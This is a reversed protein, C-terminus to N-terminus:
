LSRPSTADGESRLPPSAISQKGIQVLRPPDNQAMSALSIGGLAGQVVANIRQWNARVGCHDEHTCGLSEDVCETVAIPGDLAVIIEAVSIAEPDRALRYGGHAGRVSEVIGARGLAKLVKSATPEPIGTAEALQRGPLVGGELSEDALQTTLVVAYDTLKSIRLM